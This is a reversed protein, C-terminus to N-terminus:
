GHKVGDSIKKAARIFSYVWYRYNENDDLLMRINMTDLSPHHLLINRLFRNSVEVINPSDPSVVSKYHAALGPDLEHLSEVVGQYMQQPTM